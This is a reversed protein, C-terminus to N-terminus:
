LQLLLLLRVYMRLCFNPVTTYAKQPFLVLVPMTIVGTVASLILVVLEEHLRSRAFRVVLSSPCVDVSVATFSAQKISVLVPAQTNNTYVVPAILTVSLLM